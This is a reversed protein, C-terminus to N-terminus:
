MKSTAHSMRRGQLHFCYTGGFFQHFILSGPTMDWFFVNKVTAVRLVAFRVLNHREATVLLVHLSQGCYEPILGLRGQVSCHVPRLVDDSV